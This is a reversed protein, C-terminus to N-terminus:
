PHAPKRQIVTRSFRGDGNAKLLKWPEGSFVKWPIQISTFPFLIDEPCTGINKLIIKSQRERKNTQTQKNTPIVIPLRM